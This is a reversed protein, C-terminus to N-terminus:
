LAECVALKAAIREGYEHEIAALIKARTQASFNTANLYAEMARRADGAEKEAAHLENAAAIVDQIKKPSM